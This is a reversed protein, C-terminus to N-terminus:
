PQNEQAERRAIDRRISEQTSAPGLSRLANATRSSQGRAARQATDMAGRALMDQGASAAIKSLLLQQLTRMLGVAPDDVAINVRQVDRLMQQPNQMESAVQGYRGAQEGAKGMEYAKNSRAWPEALDDPMAERIQDSMLGSRVRAENSLEGPAYSCWFVAEVEGQQGCPETLREPLVRGPGEIGPPLEETTAGALRARERRWRNLEKNLGPSQRAANTLEEIRQDYQALLASPDTTAGRATAANAVEDVKPGAEAAQASARKTAYRTSTPMRPLDVGARTVMRRIPGAPRDHFGEAVFQKAWEHYGAGKDAKLKALGSPANWGRANLRRRRWRDDSVASYAERVRQSRALQEPMYMEPSMAARRAGKPLAHRLAGVQQLATEGVGLGVNTAVQAKIPARQLAKGAPTMGIAAYRLAPGLVSGALVGIPHQRQDAGLQARVDNGGQGVPEDAEYQLPPSQGGRTLVDYGATANSMLEDGFGGLLKQGASRAVAGEVSSAPETPQAARKPSPPADASGAELAAIRKDLAAGLAAGNDTPPTAALKARAAKLAELTPEGM